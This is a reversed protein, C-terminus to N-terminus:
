RPKNPSSLRSQISETIRKAIANRLAGASMENALTLRGSDIEGIRHTGARTRADPSSDLRHLVEQGLGDAAARMRAASIGTVRLELQDIEFTRRSL